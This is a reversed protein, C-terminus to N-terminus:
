WGALTPAAAAAFARDIRRGRRYDQAQVSSVSAAAMIAAFILRVADRGAHTRGWSPAGPYLTEVASSIARM